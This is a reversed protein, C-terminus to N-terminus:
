RRELLRRRREFSALRREVLPDDISVVQGTLGVTSPSCLWLLLEAADAPERPRRPLHGTVGNDRMSDRFTQLGQTHVLGPFVVNATVGSGLLEAALVQTFHNLGARASSYASTRGLVVEGLPSSVILVRGSGQDLMHPLVAQSVLFAGILNIEIARAWRSPEVQWTPTGVPGLVAACHVLVDIHGFVEMTRDVMRAVQTADAVDTPRALVRGGNEEIRRAVEEVERRTRAAVTVAAGVQGLLEATAAGIGRGAGTVVVVKGALMDRNVAGLAEVRGQGELGEPV